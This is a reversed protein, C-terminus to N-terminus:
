WPRLMPAKRASSARWARRSRACAPKTNITRQLLKPMMWLLFKFKLMDMVRQPVPDRAEPLARPVSVAHGADPYVFLQADPINQGM